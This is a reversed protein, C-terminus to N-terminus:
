KTGGGKDGEGPAVPQKAELGHFSAMAPGQKVKQRTGSTDTNRPQVGLACAHIWSWVAFTRAKPRPRISSWRSSRKRM